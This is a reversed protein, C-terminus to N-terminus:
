SGLGLGLVLRLGHSVEAMLHAPVQGVPADLESKDLTTVSTLNLVSDKNLGAAAARIFVNGPLAALATNSTLVAVIVTSLRSANFADDQIVLM